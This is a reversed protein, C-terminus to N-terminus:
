RGGHAARCQGQLHTHRVTTAGMRAPKLNAAALEIAAAMKRAQYEFFRADYVDEFTWVGVALTSYYAASHNHTVHHLIDDYSIGSTGHDDLIQGVRRLLMDQALYNDTKLLAIRKGNVGEVVIARATLRSQVGYSKKKLKHTLFPDPESNLSDPLAVLYDALAVPDDQLDLIPPAVTSTDCYQGACYGVDPTMDVVGVGVRVRSAAGGTGGSWGAGVQAAWDAQAARVPSVAAAEPVPRDVLGAQEQEVVRAAQEAQALVAALVRQGVQAVAVARAQRAVLVAPAVREVPVVVEAPAQVVAAAAVAERVPRVAQAAQEAPVRM